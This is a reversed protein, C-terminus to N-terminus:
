TGTSSDRAAHDPRPSPISMGLTDRGTKIWWVHIHPRGNGGSGRQAVDCRRVERGREM